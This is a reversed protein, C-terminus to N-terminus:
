RRCQRCGPTPCALWFPRVFASLNGKIQHEDRWVQHEREGGHVSTPGEHGSARNASSMSSTKPQDGLVIQLAAVAGTLRHRMAPTADLERAEIAALTRGLQDALAEVDARRM